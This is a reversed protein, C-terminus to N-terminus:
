SSPTGDRMKRLMIIRRTTYNIRDARAALVMTPPFSVTLERGQSWKQNRATKSNNM